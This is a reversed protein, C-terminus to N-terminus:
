FKTMTSEGAGDVGSKARLASISNPKAVELNNEGVRPWNSRVNVTFIYLEKNGLISLVPEHHKKFYTVKSQADKQNM